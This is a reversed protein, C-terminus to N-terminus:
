TRGAIVRVAQLLPFNVLAVKGVAVLDVGLARVEFSVLPRVRALLRVLTRPFTALPLKCPGVLQGSVEPFVGSLLRELAVEAGPREGSTVVQRQVHFPM